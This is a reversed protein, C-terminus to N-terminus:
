LPLQQEKWKNYMQVIIEIDNYRLEKNLIMDKLKTYDALFNAVWDKFGMTTVELFTGDHKKYLYFTETEYSGGMSMNTGGSGNPFYMMSTGKVKISLLSLYGDIDIKTFNKGNGFDISLYNAIGAKSYGSLDKPLYVKEIGSNDIFAIKKPAFSFRTPFYDKVKGNITDNKLTIIYGDSFNKQAITTFGTVLLIFILVANKM